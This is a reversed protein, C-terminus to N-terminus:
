LTSGFAHKLQMLNCESGTGQHTRLDQMQQGHDCECECECAYSAQATSHTMPLSCCCSSFCDFFCSFFFSCCCCCCVYMAAPLVIDCWFLPPLLASFCWWHCTLGLFPALLTTLLLLAMLVLEVRQTLAMCCIGVVTCYINKIVVASTM